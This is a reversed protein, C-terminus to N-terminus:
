HCHGHGYVFDQDERDEERTKEAGRNLNVSKEIVPLDEESDLRTQSYSGGANGKLSGQIDGAPEESVIKAGALPHHTNDPLAIDHMYHHKVAEKNFHDRLEATTNIELLAAASDNNEVAEWTFRLSGPATLGTDSIFLCSKGTNGTKLVDEELGHVSKHQHHAEIQLSGAKGHENAYIGSAEPGAMLIGGTLAVVMLAKSKFNM